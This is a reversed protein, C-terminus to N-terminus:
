SRTQGMRTQIEAFFSLKGAELMTAADFRGVADRKDKAAMYAEHAATQLLSAFFRERFKSLPVVSPEHSDILAPSPTRCVVVTFPKMDALM